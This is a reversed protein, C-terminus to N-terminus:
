ANAIREAADREGGSVGKCAPLALSRLVSRLATSSFYSSDRDGGILITRVAFGVNQVMAMSTFVSIQVSEHAHQVRSSFTM